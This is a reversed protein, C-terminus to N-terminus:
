RVVFEVAFVFSSDTYLMLLVLIKLFIVFSILPVLLIACKHLSFLGLLAECYRVSLLGLAYLFSSFYPM